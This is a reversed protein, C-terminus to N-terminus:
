SCTIYIMTYLVMRRSRAAVCGLLFLDHNLFTRFNSNAAIVGAVVHFLRDFVLELGVAVVDDVHARM